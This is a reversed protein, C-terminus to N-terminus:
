PGFVQRAWLLGGCAVVLIAVLILWPRLRASPAEHRGAAGLPDPADSLRAKPLDVVASVELGFAALIPEAKALFAAYESESFSPPQKFREEHLSAVLPFARLEARKEGAHVSGVVVAMGSPNRLTLHQLGFLGGRTSEEPATMEVTCEGLRTKVFAARFTDAITNAHSSFQTLIKPM